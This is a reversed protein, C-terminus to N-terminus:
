SAGLWARLREMLRAVVEALGLPHDSAGLSGELLRLRAELRVLSRVREQERVEARTATGNSASRRVADEGAAAGESAVGAQARTRAQTGASGSVCDATCAGCSGDTLRDQVCDRDRDLQAGDAPPQTEWGSRAEAQAGGAGQGAQSGQGAWAPLQVVSVILAATLLLMAIRKWRM